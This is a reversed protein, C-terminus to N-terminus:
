SIFSKSCLPIEQLATIVAPVTSSGSVRSSSFMDNANLLLYLFTESSTFGPPRCVVIGSFLWFIASLFAFATAAQWRDCLDGSTFNDWEWPDGCNLDQMAVILLGFSAFWALSIIIDV